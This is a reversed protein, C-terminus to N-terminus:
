IVFDIHLTDTYRTQAYLTMYMLTSVFKKSQNLSITSLVECVNSIFMTM